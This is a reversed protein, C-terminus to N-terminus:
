GPRRHVRPLPHAYRGPPVLRGARSRPAPRRPTLGHRVPAPSGRWASPRTPTLRATPSTYAVNTFVRETFTDSADEPDAARLDALSQTGLLLSLGASRARAFLRTVQAAALAAFEDIVILGRVERGQM